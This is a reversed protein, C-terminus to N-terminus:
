TVLSSFDLDIGVELTQTAVVVDISSDGKCTFLNPHDDRLKKMDFPRMRGVILKVSLNEKKLKDAVKVATGVHNVICGVTESQGANNPELKKCLGLVEDVASNIVADNEAKGNWKDLPIRTLRKASNVRRLLEADHPSDLQSVDVGIQNQNEELESPTATTEVVQLTPVGVDAGYKQLQAIRRATVLLQQNLHAEDLVMVSDMSVVATERPRAGKSSGYGRFLLRSGWMDPTAAIIACASIENVPLSRNSLEGRIHGIEFPRVDDHVQFSLLAQAVRYIIEERSTLPEEKDLIMMMQCLIERARDAQSDVLARRGVVVNLRRPVRPGTGCAYLANVFLHVDVVSSKGAGTPAVIRDPWSGTEVIHAVLEQQWTFPPYGGNLAAFFESFDSRQIGLNSTM